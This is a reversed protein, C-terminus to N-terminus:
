DDRRGKMKRAMHELLQVEKPTLDARSFLTQWQLFYGDTNRDPLAGVSLLGERLLGIMAQKEEHSARGPAVPPRSGARLVEYGAIMVAHSLNLSPQDPHSPILVRRGCIAIEAYTLGSTEPGFVLAATEGNELSAIEAAAERVDIPPSPAERRGSLAAVYAAGRLADELRPAVVASELIEHAGWATRWCEVTRYDGPDVLVLEQLGTNRMVRAVAGVNAPQEPRM